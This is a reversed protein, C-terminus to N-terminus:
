INDTKNPHIKPIATNFICFPLLLLLDNYCFIMVFDPKREIREIKESM